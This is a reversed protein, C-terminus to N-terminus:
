RTSLFAPWIAPTALKLRALACLSLKIDCCLSDVIMHRLCVCFRPVALRTSHPCARVLAAGAETAAGHSAQAALTDAQTNAVLDQLGACLSGACCLHM